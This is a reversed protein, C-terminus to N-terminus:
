ICAARDCCNALEVKLHIADTNSNSLHLPQVILAVLNSSVANLNSTHQSSDIPITNQKRLCPITRLHYKGSEDLYSIGDDVNLQFSRRFNFRSSTPQM